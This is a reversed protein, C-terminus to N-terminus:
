DELNDLNLVEVVELFIVIVDLLKDMLLDRHELIVIHLTLVKDVKTVLMIQQEVVVELEQHGLTVKHPLYLLNIVQDLHHHFDQQVQEVQDELDAEVVIVEAVM